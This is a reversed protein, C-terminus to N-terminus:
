RIEIAIFTIDDHEPLRSVHAQLAATITNKIDLASGNTTNLVSILKEDGFQRNNSDTAETLGDTYLFLKDGKQMKLSSVDFSTNKEVGIPLNKFEYSTDASRAATKLPRWFREGHRCFLAPHHGANCFSIEGTALYMDVVLATTFAQIGFDQANHNLDELVLNSKANNMFKKLSKHIWQSITAASAGHGMVDAIIVRTLLDESCVSVSYIDGGEYGDAASSYVSIKAASTEANIDTETIGGWIEECKIQHMTIIKQNFSLFGTYM